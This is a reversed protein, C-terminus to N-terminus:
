AASRRMRRPARLTTLWEDLSKPGLGGVYGLDSAPVPVPSLRLRVTVKV